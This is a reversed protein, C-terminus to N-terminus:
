MDELAELVDDHLEEQPHRHTQFGKAAPIKIHANSVANRETQILDTAPSRLM